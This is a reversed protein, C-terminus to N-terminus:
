RAPAPVAFLWFDNGYDGVVVDHVGDGTQDPVALVQMGFYDCRSRDEHCSFVVDADNMASISGAFPSFLLYAQGSAGNGTSFGWENPYLGSGVLLDDRGDGDLDTHAAVEGRAITHVHADADVDVTAGSLPGFFVFTGAFPAGESWPYDVRNPDGIVLDAYGDGNLDGADITFGLNHGDGAAHLLSSRVTFAADAADHDGLLPGATVSVFDFDGDPYRVDPDPASVALDAIGDGTLDARGHVGVGLEVAVATSELVRAAPSIGPGTAAAVEVGSLVWVQDTCPDSVLLDDRDDGTLDAAREIDYGLCRDPDDGVILQVGETFLATPSPGWFLWVEDTEDEGFFLAQDNGLAFDDFGDGDLDGLGQLSSGYHRGPTPGNVGLVGPAGVDPLWQRRPIAALDLLYFTGFPGCEVLPAGAEDVGVELCGSALPVGLGITFGGDGRLDGLAALEAVGEGSLGIEKMPDTLRSCLEDTWGAEVRACSNVVGDGCVEVADPYVAANHDDCDAPAAFGDHDHDPSTGSTPGSAVPIAPIATDAGGATDQPPGAPAAPGACAALLGLLAVGRADWGGGTRLSPARPTPM